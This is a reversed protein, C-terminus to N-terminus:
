EWKPEVSILGSDRPVTKVQLLLKDVDLDWSNKNPYNGVWDVEAHMPGM